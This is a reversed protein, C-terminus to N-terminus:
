QELDAASNYKQTIISEPHLHSCLDSKYGLIFQIFAKRLDTVQLSQNVDVVILAPSDRTREM